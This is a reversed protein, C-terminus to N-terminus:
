IQGFTPTPLLPLFLRNGQPMSFSLCLRGLIVVLFFLVTIGEFPQDQNLLDHLTCDVSEVVHNHQSAAEDWIILFTQQLLQHNLDDKKINCISQEHFPTPNKFHSHARHDGPLLLSALGTSTACLVINGRVCVAAAFLKSCGGGSHLFFM